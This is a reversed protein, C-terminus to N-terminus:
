EEVRIENPLENGDKEVNTFGNELLLEQCTTVSNVIGQAVQQHKIGLVITDVIHKWDKGSIKKNIESDGLVVVKHEFESIFILIGIRDKTKFVEEQLFVDRAKTLVRKSITRNSSLSLRLNPIFIALLYALIMLVLIVVSITFPTLWTPLIFLYSLLGIGLSVSAGIIASFKWRSGPYNDSKRAFYLVLEGATTKELETVADKIRVKEDESFKIKKM